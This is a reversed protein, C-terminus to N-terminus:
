FVNKIHKKHALRLAWFIIKSYYSRIIIARMCYTINACSNLKDYGWRKSEIGYNRGECHQKGNIESRISNIRELCNGKRNCM